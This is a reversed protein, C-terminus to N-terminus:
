IFMKSIMEEYFKFIPSGFSKAEAEANAQKQRFVALERERQDPPMNVFDQLREIWDQQEQIKLILDEKERKEKNKEIRLNYNEESLNKIRAKLERVQEAYQGAIKKRTNEIIQQRTEKM